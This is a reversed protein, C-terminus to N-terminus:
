RKKAERSEAYSTELRKFGVLSLGVSNAYNELMHPSWSGRRLRWRRTDFVERAEGNKGVQGANLIWVLQNGSRSVMLYVERKGPPGPFHKRRVLEDYNSVESSRFDVDFKIAKLVYRDM